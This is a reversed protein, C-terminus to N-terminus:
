ATLRRVAVARGEDDTSGADQNGNGFNQCWAGGDSDLTSTWYWGATDIRDRLQAYLLASEFRTPLRAGDGLGEAWATADAHDLSGDPRADLLVLHGDPEGDLGRAVGAYVGDIGPWREGIAPPILKVPSPAVATVLEATAFEEHRPLPEDLLLASLAAATHPRVPGSLTLSIHEINM